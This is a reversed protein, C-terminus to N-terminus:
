SQPAAYPAVETWTGKDMIPKLVRTRTGTAYPFASLDIPQIM